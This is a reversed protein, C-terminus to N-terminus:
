IVHLLIIGLQQLMRYPLSFQQESGLWLKQIIIYFHVLYKDCKHPKLAQMAQM